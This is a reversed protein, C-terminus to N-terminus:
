PESPLPLTMRVTTGNEDLALDGDANDVAWKLCWLSVNEAHALPTEEGREVAQVDFEPLGCGDDEVAVLVADDTDARTVRVEVTVGENNRAIQAVVDAITEPLISVGTVREPVDDDVDLAIATDSDGVRVRSLADDLASAIDVPLQDADDDALLQQMRRTQESVDALKMATERITDLGDQQDREANRSLLDARGAIINIDNRVNHRLIRDLVSLMETREELAVNSAELQDRTERIEAIRDRQADRMAAFTRNLEGFEDARETEFTVDYEGDRIRRAKQTLRSLAGTVDAGLISVVGVFGTLMFAGVIGIWTRTEHLIAFAEREPAHKILVWDTGTVPVYAAVYGDGDSASLASDSPEPDAIFGSEGRLGSRLAYPREGGDDYPQLTASADDALVITGNSDVVRTFGGAVPYTFRDFASTTGVAVVLLLEPRQRIPTVYSVVTTGDVREYPDTSRVDDFGRFALRENWPLATTPAGEISPDTSTRISRNRRDVVYAAEIAIEDRTRRQGELYSRIAEDDNAYVPHESLIQATLRNRTDWETLEGAEATAAATMSDEVNENLLGGVQVYLGVGGVATVLFVALLAVALKRRYSSRVFSRLRAAGPPSWM